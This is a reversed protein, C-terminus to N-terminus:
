RAASVTDSGLRGSLGASLEADGALGGLVMLQQAATSRSSTSSFSRSKLSDQPSAPPFGTLHKTSLCRPLAVFSLFSRAETVGHDPLMPAPQLRCANM